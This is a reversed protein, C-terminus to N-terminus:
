NKMRFGKMVDEPDTAKKRHNIVYIFEDIITLYKIEVIDKESNKNKFELKLFETGDIRVKSKNTLLLDRMNRNIVFNYNMPSEISFFYYAVTELNWNDFEPKIRMYELDDKWPSFSFISKYLSWLFVEDGSKGQENFSRFIYPGGLGTLTGKDKFSMSFYINSHNVIGGSAVTKLQYKKTFEAERELDRTIPPPPPPSM